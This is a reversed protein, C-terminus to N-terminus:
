RGRKAQTIPCSCTFRPRGCGDCVGCQRHGPQGAAPCNARELDDQEPPSGVVRAFEHEDM